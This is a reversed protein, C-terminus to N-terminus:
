QFVQCKNTYDYESRKSTREDKTNNVTVQCILKAFLQTQRLYSVVCKKRSTRSYFSTLDDERTWKEYKKSSITTYWESNLTWHQELPVTEVHDTKGFFCTMKKSSIKEVFLKQQIQNTKSLGCPPSNNQKPSMRMSGNNTVQLSRIFTM